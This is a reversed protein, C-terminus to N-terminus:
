IIKPNFCSLNKTLESLHTKNIESIFYNEVKQTKHSCFIFLTPCSIRELLEFLETAKLFAWPLRRAEKKTRTPDPSQLFDPNPIVL